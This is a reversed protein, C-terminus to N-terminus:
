SIDATQFPANGFALNKDLVFFLLCIWLSSFALVFSMFCGGVHSELIGYNKPHDCCFCYLFTLIYIIFFIVYAINIQIKPKSLEYYNKSMASEKNQKYSTM